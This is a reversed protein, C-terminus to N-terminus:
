NNISNTIHCLEIFVWIYVSVASITCEKKERKLDSWKKLIKTCALIDAMKNITMCFITEWILSFYFPNAYIKEMKGWHARESYLRWLNLLIFLRVKHWYVISALLAFFNLGNLSKCLDVFLNNKLTWLLDPDDHEDEERPVDSQVIFVVVYLDFLCFTDDKM